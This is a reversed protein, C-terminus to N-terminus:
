LYNSILKIISKFIMQQTMLKYKHSKVYLNYDHKFWKQFTKYDVNYCLEGRFKKNKTLEKVNNIFRNVRREWIEDIPLKIFFKHITHFDVFGGLYNDCYGTFVIPYNNKLSKVYLNITEVMVEGYLKNKEQQKANKYTDTNYISNSWDDLDMINVNKNFKSKLWEGLTTKGSGSVGSIHIILRERKKQSVNNRNHNKDSKKSM